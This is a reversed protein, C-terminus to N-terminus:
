QHGALLLAAAESQIILPKWWEDHDLYWAVTQKLGDTLTINFDFGLENQIKSANIAYRRDHGLRDTVHTILSQSTQGQTPAAKPYKKIYESHTEFLEDVFECLKHVLALNTMEGHHGGINYCEGSQGRKLTVDIGRCHDLVHLWDRVQLGDGYIPIPQGQLINLLCLPILKEPFHYPGYNNSCHSITTNLGYTAHFARVIHDAAAKSAAYPSNPQYAHTESFPEDTPQLTGFVEDTSIHHFRHSALKADDLWFRKAVTLLAHTGLVNTTMFESSDNISRDVHSEAAFHVVIDIGYNSFIDSVCKQDNINGKIFFYNSHNELSTLNALNGAYTLQDLVVLTDDPYHNAWYHVFNSGIFGAGGTILLQSM